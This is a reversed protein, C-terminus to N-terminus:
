PVGQARALATVSARNTSAPEAGQRVGSATPPRSKRDAARAPKGTRSPASVKRASEGHRLRELLGDGAEVVVDLVLPLAVVDLGLVRPDVIGVDDGVEEHAPVDERRLLGGVRVD